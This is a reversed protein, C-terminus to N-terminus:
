TSNPPRLIILALRKVDISREEVTLPWDLGQSGISIFYMRPEDGVLATGSGAGKEDV